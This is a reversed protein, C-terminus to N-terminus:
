PHLSILLNIASDASMGATGGQATLDYTKSQILTLVDVIRKVTTSLDSGNVGGIGQAAYTATVLPLINSLLQDDTHKICKSSIVEACCEENCTTLIAM